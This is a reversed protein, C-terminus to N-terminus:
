QFIEDFASCIISYWQQEVEMKEKDSRGKALHRVGMVGAAIFSAGAAANQLPNYGRHSIYNFGEKASINFQKRAAELNMLKSVGFGNVSVFAYTNQYKVSVAFSFYDKRHEPHYIALCEETHGLVGGRKIQEIEFAVPINGNNLCRQLADQISHLTIHQGNKYQVTPRMEQLEKEQIM